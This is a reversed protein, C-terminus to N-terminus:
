KPQQHVQQNYGVHQPPYAYGNPPTTPPPPYWGVGYAGGGPPYNVYGPAQSYPGQPYAPVGQQQNTMYSSTGPPHSSGSTRANDRAPYVKEKFQHSFTFTGVSKGRVSQVQYDVVHESSGNAELLERVPISVEGIDKDGWFRNQRLVFLLTSTNIASEEVPFKVRHNWKPNRGRSSHTKKEVTSKGNILSVVVYVRMRFFFWFNNLGNASIVTIDLPRYDM